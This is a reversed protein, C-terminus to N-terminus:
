AAPKSALHEYYAGVISYVQALQKSQGIIARGKMCMNYYAEAINLKIEDLKVGGALQADIERMLEFSLGVIGTRGVGAHCNISLPAGPDNQLEKMRLLMNLLLKEDSVTKHDVWGEFHLHSITRKQDGNTAQLTTEILKESAKTGTAVLKESVHELKWGHRLPTVDVREKKWFGNWGSEHSELTSVFLNGNKLLLTDFLIGAAKASKPCATFIFNQRGPIATCKLEVDPYDAAPNNELGKQILLPNGKTRTRIKEHLAKIADSKAAKEKLKKLSAVDDPFAGPNSAAAAPLRAFEKAFEKQKAQEKTEKLAKNTQKGIAICQVIKEAVAAPLNAKNAQFVDDAKKLLRASLKKKDHNKEVNKVLQNFYGLVFDATKGNSLSSFLRGILQGESIKKEAGFIVKAYESDLDLKKFEKIKM